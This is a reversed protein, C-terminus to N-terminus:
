EEKGELIKKIEKYADKRGQEYKIENHLEEVHKNLDAIIADCGSIRNEIIQKPEM